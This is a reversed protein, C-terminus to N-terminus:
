FGLSSPLPQVRTLFANNADVGFPDDDFCLALLHSHRSGVRWSETCKWPSSNRIEAMRHVFGGKSLGYVRSDLAMTGEIMAVNSPPRTLRPLSGHPYPTSDDWAILMVKRTSSLVVKRNVLVGGDNRSYYPTRGLYLVQLM